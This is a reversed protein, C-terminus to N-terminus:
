MKEDKREAQTLPGGSLPRSNLPLWEIRGGRYITSGNPGACVPKADAIVAIYYGAFDPLALSVTGALNCVRPLRNLPHPMRTSPAAAEGNPTGVM